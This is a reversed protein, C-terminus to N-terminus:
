RTKEKKRERKKKERERKERKIRELASRPIDSFVSENAFLGSSFAKKVPNTAMRHYLNVEGSDDFDSEFYSLFLLSLSLSLPLGSHRRLRRKSGRPM